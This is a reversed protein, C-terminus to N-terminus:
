TRGSDHPAQDPELRIVIRAGEWVELLHGDLFQKAKAVAEEDNQCLRVKAPAATHGDKKITYFYYEPM